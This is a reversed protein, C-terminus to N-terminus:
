GAPAGMAESSLRHTPRAKQRMADSLPLGVMYLWSGNWRRVSSSSSLDMMQHRTTQHAAPQSAQGM